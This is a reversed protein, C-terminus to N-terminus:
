PQTQYPTPWFFEVIWIGDWRVQVVYGLAELKGAARYAGDSLIYYQEMVGEWDIPEANLVNIPFLISFVFLIVAGIILTKILRNMKKVDKAM